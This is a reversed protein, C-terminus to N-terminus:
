SPIYRNNPSDGTTNYKVFDVGESYYGNSSGCFRIDVYGNITALKYFTWTTSCDDKDPDFISVSKSEEARLIPTNVLDQLDGVISEIYVNECCDQEHYLKYVLGSSTTFTIEDDSSMVSTFTLGLVESFKCYISM